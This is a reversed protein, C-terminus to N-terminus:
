NARTRWIICQMQMYIRFNIYKFDDGGGQGFNRVSLKGMHNSQSLWANLELCISSQLYSFWHLVVNFWAFLQLLMLKMLFTMIKINSGLHDKCQTCWGYQNCVLQLTLSLSQAECKHCWIRQFNFLQEPSLTSIPWHLNKVLTAMWWIECGCSRM